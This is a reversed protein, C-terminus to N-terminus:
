RTAVVLLLVSAVAGVLGVVGVTSGVGPDTLLRDLGLAVGVAGVGVLLTGGGHVLETRVPEAQSGLERGLTGGFEGVDWVLLSALVGVLALLLSVGLVTAFVATTFLGAAAVSAGPAPSDGLGFTVSLVALAVMALSVVLLSTVVVLALLEGGYASLAETRVERFPVVLQVPLQREIRGTLASLFPGHFRIACVSLVLGSGYPVVAALTESESRRSTSQLFRSLALAVVAVVTFLALVARLPGFGVVVGLAEVLGAPLWAYPNSQGLELVVVPLTTLGFPLAARSLARDLAVLAARTEPTLAGDLVTEAPLAHIAARTGYLAGGLLVLFSALPLTANPDVLVGIPDGVPRGVSDFRLLAALTMAAGVVVTTRFGARLCEVLTERDLVDRVLATAGFVAVTAGLVLFVAGVPVSRRVQSTFTYGVGALVAGGVAPLVVGTLAAGAVRWRESALLWLLVALVAAGAVSYRARSSLGGADLLLWATGLTVVVVVAISFRTPQWDPDVPRIV